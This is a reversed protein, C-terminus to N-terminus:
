EHVYRTCKPNLNMSRSVQVDSFDLKQQSVVIHLYQRRTLMTFCEQRYEELIFGMSGNSYRDLLAQSQISALISSTSGSITTISLSSKVFLESGKDHAVDGFNHLPVSSNYAAHVRTELSSRLLSLEDGTNRMM